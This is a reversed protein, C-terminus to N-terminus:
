RLTQHMNEIKQTIGHSAYAQFAGAACWRPFISWSLVLSSLTSWDSEWLIDNTSSLDVELHVITMWVYTNPLYIKQFVFSIVTDGEPFGSVSNVARPLVWAKFCCNSDQFVNLQVSVKVTERYRLVKRLFNTTITIFRIKEYQIIFHTLMPFTNYLWSHSFLDVRLALCISTSTALYSCNVSITESAM